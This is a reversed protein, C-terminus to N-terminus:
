PNAEEIPKAVLRTQECCPCKEWHAFTHGCSCPCGEPARSTSDGAWTFVHGARCLSASTGGPPWTKTDDSADDKSFLEEREADEVRRRHLEKKERDSRVLSRGYIVCAGVIVVIPAILVIGIKIIM